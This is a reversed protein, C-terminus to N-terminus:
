MHLIKTQGGNSDMDVTYPGINSFTVNSLINPSEESANASAANSATIVSEDKNSTNSSQMMHGIANGSSIVNGSLQNASANITNPGSEAKNSTNSSQMMYVIANGSSIVNGSLENASANVTNPGSDNQYSLGPPTPLNSANQM